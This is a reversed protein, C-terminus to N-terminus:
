RGGKCRGKSYILLARGAKDV